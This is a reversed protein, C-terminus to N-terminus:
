FHLRFALQIQRNTGIGVTSGVTSSARGFATGAAASSFAQGPQVKNAETLATTPIANALTGGIGAFNTKNFVNFIELRFEGAIGRSAPGVAVRKAIVADAQWFNPGHIANRELDGFTGPQPTAFAAPNLFLLGGNVIYPNVGPVVDPRRKARTLGGGPTNILASRGVAPNLFISGTIDDRYVVDNRAVLVEIPLGSRANIIGGVSWGGTLAGKFPLEYLISANFTHRVDFNNYGRDYEWDSIARANNGATVAENSGGTTGRSKGFTYQLNMSVGTPSRRTLALQMSDYRNDGGSTKYDIEAYPKQISAITTATLGVSGPCLIGTGVTGNQCTVIDFERVQLAASGGNTQVGILRNAISRLFQNRGQSGVYSVSASMRYGIERQVSASYQWVEEPLTYEDAYARPQYTRTNPNNIFNAKIAAPDIPFALLPGTSLTTSIREAEIPQIQDETQGPGVFLGGGAKLVTKANLQYTASVRPQFETKKSKYFPTSDPDLLGTVINFKVIRNDAEHLPAYYDYRLGYNLTLNQRVRWEDQVYAVYYEQNIHKMGTAGSHFPSAESLDGFYQISGPTNAMFAAVNSFAYTIGGQQDTTMRILRVDGGMKIFHNGAVRSVSDSFTMSYPFYPAARGNGASNVRVLGGPSSLGSSAGQGAIGSITVVGSLNLSINEFGPQTVASQTSNAANYGFKFENILGGGVIGQLNFVANTPKITAKFFRGSVDQPDLSEAQDHSVRIYSSWNDNLKYDVRASIANEVVHQNARWQLVDFNPDTSGPIITAGAAAFGPRLAAIVPVANAWAAASPVGQILNKGADVRYGEYSAFFFARDQVIPGGLSGGFQNLKLPSKPVTPASGVKAIITDDANRTSDFHNPSDFKDSRLYEFISGRFFNGGSKTIVSIQGGTGTGYEAPYGSSEIRFEQVNELSTQLKFLSPNEGNLVGPASDIVGSAEVGDYKIVNQEVARGSFRIDGWTGTGANQSGPAQLMLQSMQRGNVPLGQVERESVNAGVKASSTDLVPSSAVVTVAESVGPPKLEFPLSLEQGVAVALKTYEIPPFGQLTVKVTYTAPKLAAVVFYGTQNSTTTRLEGTKENKVTVTVGPVVAGSSDKVTGTIRGSDTQAFATAASLVLIAIGGLVTGM